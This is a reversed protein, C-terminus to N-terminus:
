TRPLFPSNISFTLHLTEQGRESRKVKHLDTNFHQWPSRYSLRSKLQATCSGLPCTISYYSSLGVFNKFYSKWLFKFTSKPFASAFFTSNCNGLCPDPKSQDNGQKNEPVSFPPISFQKPIRWPLSMDQTTGDLSSGDLTPNCYYQM